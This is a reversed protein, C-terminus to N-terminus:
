SKVHKIIPEVFLIIGGNINRYTVKLKSAYQLISFEFLFFILKGGNSSMLYIALLFVISKM